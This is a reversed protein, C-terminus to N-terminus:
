DGKEYLVEGERKVKRAFMSDREPFTEHMSPTHIILDLPVSRELDRLRRAM